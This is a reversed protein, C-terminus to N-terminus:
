RSMPPPYQTYAPAQRPAAPQYYPAQAAPAGYAGPLGYGGAPQQGYTALPKQGYGAIPQGGGPPLGRANAPNRSDFVALGAKAPDAEQQAWITGPPAIQQTYPPWSATEQGNYGPLLSFGFKEYPMPGVGPVRRAVLPAPENAEKRLPGEAAPPFSMAPIRQSMLSPIPLPRFRMPNQMEVQAPFKGKIAKLMAAVRKEEAGPKADVPYSFNKQAAYNIEQQSYNPAAGPIIAPGPAMFAATRVGPGHLKESGKQDCPSPPHYYGDPFLIEIVKAFLGDYRNAMEYLGKEKKLRKQSMAYGYVTADKPFWAVAREFWFAAVDWQCSNYAYWGLGQAGEGSSTEMTVKAYRALRDAEIFPPIERTLDTELLDLFLIANNVLPEHWAYAVEEAERKMNLARLSHALGHAIMADGDSQIALKFWELAKNFDRLKYAYWAVLGIQNAERSNRAYAEFKEVDAPDVEEKRQDHLYAAIRARTIDIAIQQFENSGKSAGPISALLTEFDAMRLAGLAKQVTAVRINPDKSTTLIRKFMNVAEENQKARAYAEAITWLVDVEETLESIDEGKLYAVLDDIKEAKWLSSIKMRLEKRRLKSALDASPKWGPLEREKAAIAEKLEDIKDASYLAWFPEEDIANSAPAEYLDAPPEYSPYLTHLRALEANVRATQKMSAYYRLAFDDPAVPGGVLPVQSRTARGSKGGLKSEPKLDAPDPAQAEAPPKPAKADKPKASQAKPDALKLAQPKGAQARPDPAAAGPGAGALLATAIALLLRPTLASM